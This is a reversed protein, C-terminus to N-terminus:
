LLAHPISIFVFLLSSGNSPTPRRKTNNNSKFLHITKISDILKNSITVQITPQNIYDIYFIPDIDMFLNILFNLKSLILQTFTGIQLM